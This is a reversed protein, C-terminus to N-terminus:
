MERTNLFKQRIQKVTELHRNAYFKKVADSTHEVESNLANELKELNKRTVETDTEDREVAGGRFSIEKLITLMEQQESINAKKYASLFAALLEDNFCVLIKSKAALGREYTPNKLYDIFFIENMLYPWQDQLKEIEENLSQEQPTLKTEGEDRMLRRHGREECIDGKIIKAKRNHFGQLLRADDVDCQIPVGIKRFDDLRGLLAVYDDTTLKGDYAQQLVQPLGRDIIEQSLEWFAKDLVEREPATEKVSFRQNLAAKIRQENWEGEIMWRILPQIRYQANYRKYKSNEGDQTTQWRPPNRKKDEAKEELFNFHYEDYEDMKKYNGGKVEFLYAVFVYLAEGMGDTPLKLSHWLGYVREFDILCSKFTRLNRSGSEEFVQFLKPSEKKLFEKYESTETKYDEIMEQQIRRYEMDLKVTREVVKEKFTKYNEEDEINDESAIVITKIRKDEVYTNIIGLLDIVGIKCREFDDFVLVLKKKVPQEEGAVICYVEKEIPLFDHIDISLLMNASKAIKKIKGFDFLEGFAAAKESLQKAINVGKAIHGKGSKEAKNFTQAYAVAEKVKKSLTNTDEIGFLSVVAMLNKPEQNLKKEIQRILYTKGSGWKGTVLLAGNQDQEEIYNEIEKKFFDNNLKNELDTLLQEPKYAGKKVTNKWIPFTGCRLVITTYDEIDKLIRVTPSINKGKNTYYEMNLKITSLIKNKVTEIKKNRSVINATKDSWGQYDIEISQSKSSNAQNEAM